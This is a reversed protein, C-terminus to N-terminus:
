KREMTRTEQCCRLRRLLENVMSDHEYDRVEGRFQREGRRRYSMVEVGQLKKRIDTSVPNKKEIDSAEFEWGDDKSMVFMMEAADRNLVKGLVDMKTDDELLGGTLVVIVRQALDISSVLTQEKLQISERLERAIAKGREGCVVFFNHPTFVPVHARPLTRGARDLLENLMATYEFGRRRHPIMEKAAAIKFIKDRIHAADDPAGPIYKSFGMDKTELDEFTNQLMSKGNEVSTSWGRQEANTDDGKRTCQNDRWRQLDWKWWMPNEEVVVFIPKNAHMACAIELLCYWRSLASNTLILVFIDSDRVGQIMDPATIKDQSMDRWVHIGKQALANYLTGVEGSSEAQSHSVFVHYKMPRLSVTPASGTCFPHALIEKIAPRESPQGKLCWRILDKADQTDQMPFVGELYSDSITHWACLIVQDNKSVLNDNSIDQSFLHQGTCLEYLIVGLSWVDFTADINKITPGNAFIHQALEPPCYATSCKKDPVCEKGMEVAADMDCLMLTGDMRLFNRPKLDSHIVGADHLTQVKEVADTFIKKIEKLDYGAIRQTQLEHFLSTSGLKMVLAYPKEPYFYPDTTATRQAIHKFNPKFGKPWLLKVGKPLHWGIVKTVCTDVPTNGFRTLIERAFEDYNKMLKLAVPVNHVMDTAFWVVSTASQHVPHISEIKYRLKFLYKYKFRHYAPLLLRFIFFLYIQSVFRVVFGAQKTPLWDVESMHKLMPYVEKNEEILYLAVTAITAPVCVKFYDNYITDLNRLFYGFCFFPIKKLLIRAKAKTSPSTWDLVDPMYQLMPYFERNEKILHSAFATVTFGLLLAKFLRQFLPELKDMSKAMSEAGLYIWWLFFILCIIIYINVFDDYPDFISGTTQSVKNMDDLLRQDLRCQM